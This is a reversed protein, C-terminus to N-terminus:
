AARQERFPQIHRVAASRPQADSAIRLNLRLEAVKPPLLPPPQDAAEPVSGVVPQSLM